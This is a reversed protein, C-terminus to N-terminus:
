YKQELMMDNTKEILMRVDSPMRQVEKERKVVMRYSRMFNSQIVTEISEMDSHAWQRLQSPQGIAKQVMEPLKAFETEAGYYGNRIAKSVLAWAEMENLENPTSIMQMKGVLQGISPAFGSTDSMIYAKLAMAVQQYSFDELMMQWVDITEAMDVPKYNPYSDVM